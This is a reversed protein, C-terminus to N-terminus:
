KPLLFSGGVPSAKGPLEPGPLAVHPEVTATVFVPDASILEQALLNTLDGSTADDQVARLVYICVALPLLCALLIGTVLISQAIVPERQEAVTLDLQQQDLQERRADLRGREVQLEHQLSRQAQLLEARAKADAAVLDRTAQTTEQSQKAIFANQEAQRDASKESLGVLREDDTDCGVIGTLGLVLLLPPLTRTTWM